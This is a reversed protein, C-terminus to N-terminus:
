EKRTFSIGDKWYDHFFEQLDVIATGLVDDKTEILLRRGLQNYFIRLLVATQDTVSAAIHGCLCVLGGSVGFINPFPYAEATVWENLSLIAQGVITMGDNIMPSRKYMELGEYLQMFDQIAVMRKPWNKDSIVKDLITEDFKKIEKIATRNVRGNMCAYPLSILGNLLEM